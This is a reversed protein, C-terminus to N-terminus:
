CCLMSYLKFIEQSKSLCHCFARVELDMPSVLDDRVILVLKLDPPSDGNVKTGEHPHRHGDNCLVENTSSYATSRPTAPESVDDSRGVNKLSQASQATSAKSIYRSTLYGALFGSAAAIALSVGVNNTLDIKVNATM